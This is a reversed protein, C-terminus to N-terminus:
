EDQQLVSLALCLLLFILTVAWVIGTGLTILDLIKATIADDLMRFFRGFAFLFVIGVPLVVSSVFLGQIARRLTPLCCLPKRDRPSPPTSPSKADM